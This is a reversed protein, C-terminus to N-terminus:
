KGEARMNAREVSFSRDQKATAIREFAREVGKFEALTLPATPDALRKGFAQLGMMEDFGFRVTFYIPRAGAPAKSLADIMPQQYPRLAPQPPIEDWSLGAAKYAVIAARMAAELSRYRNGVMKSGLKAWYCRATLYGAAISAGNDPRWVIFHSNGNAAEVRRASWLIGGVMMPPRGVLTETDTM